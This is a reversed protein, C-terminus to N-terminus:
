GSGAIVVGFNFNDIDHLGSSISLTLTVEISADVEIFQGSYDWSLSMYSSAEVPDWSVTSLSISVPVNSEAENKIYITLDKQSGLEVIGWDLYSVPNSCGADWYVGVNVAKMTGGSGITTSFMSVSVTTYVLINFVCFAVAFILPRFSKRTKTPFRTRLMTSFQRVKDFSIKKM